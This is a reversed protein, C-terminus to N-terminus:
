TKLATILEGSIRENSKDLSKSMVKVTNGRERSVGGGVGGGCHRTAHSSVGGGVGGRATDRPKYGAARSKASIPTSEAKKPTDSNPAEPPDADHGILHPWDDRVAYELSRSSISWKARM